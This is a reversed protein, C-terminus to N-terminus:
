AAFSYEGTFSMVIVREGSLEHLNDSQKTFGYSDYFARGLTNKEFVELIVTNKLAIAKDMLQKGIGQRQYKPAVFMAGVESTSKHNDLLAMFGIVEGDSEAIWTESIPLFQEAIAQRVFDVVSEKLFPHAIKNAQEWVQMLGSKDMETYPRIAINM